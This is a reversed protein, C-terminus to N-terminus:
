GLFRGDVGDRGAFRERRGADLGVFCAFFEARVPDTVAFAGKGLLAALVLVFHRRVTQCQLSDEADVLPWLPPDLAEGIVASDEGDM